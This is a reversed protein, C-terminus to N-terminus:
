DRTRACGDKVDAGTKRQVYTSLAVVVDRDADALKTCAHRDFLNFQWLGISIRRSEGNPRPVRLYLEPAPLSEPIEHEIRKLPDSDQRLMYESAIILLKAVPVYNRTPANDNPDTMSDAVLFDSAVAHAAQYDGVVFQLEALDLSVLKLSPSEIRQDASTVEIARQFAKIAKLLPLRQLDTGESWAVMARGSLVYNYASPDYDLLISYADEAVDFQSDRKAAAAVSKLVATYADVDHKDQLGAALRAIARRYQKEGLDLRALLLTLERTSEGAALVQEAVIRAGPRDDLLYLTAALKFRAGPFTGARRFEDAAERYKRQSYLLGGLEMRSREHRPDTKTALRFAGEALRTASAAQYANGLDCLFDPNGLKAGRQLLPVALHLLGREFFLKGKKVAEIDSLRTTAITDAMDANNYENGLVAAVAKGLLAFYEERDRIYSDISGAYFALPLAGTFGSRWLVPKVLSNDQQVVDIWGGIVATSKELSQPLTTCDAKGGEVWYIGATDTRRLREGFDLMVPEALPGNRIFCDVFVNAARVDGGSPRRLYNSIVAAIESLGSVTLGGEDRVTVPGLRGRVGNPGVIDGSWITSNQFRYIASSLRFADGPQKKDGVIPDVDPQTSLLFRLTEAVSRSDVGKEVLRDDLVQPDEIIVAKTDGLGKPQAQILEIPKGQSQAHLPNVPWWSSASLVLMLQVARRAAHPMGRWAAGIRRRSVAQGGQASREM